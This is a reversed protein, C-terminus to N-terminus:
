KNKSKQGQYTHAYTTACYDEFGFEFNNVLAAFLIEFFLQM